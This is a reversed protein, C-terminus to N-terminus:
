HCGVIATATTGTAWVKAVRLPHWGQGLNPFTVIDGSVLTVRLNGATGVHIARTAVALANADDPTIEAAAQIPDSMGTAHNKFPDTM